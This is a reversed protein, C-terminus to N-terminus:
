STKTARSINLKDNALLPANPRHTGAFPPSRSCDNRCRHKSDIVESCCRQIELLLLFLLCGRLFAEAPYRRRGLPSRRVQRQATPLSRQLLSAHHHERRRGLSLCLLRDHTILHATKGRTTCRLAAWNRTLGWFLIISVKSWEELCVAIHAAFFVYWPLASAVDSCRRM